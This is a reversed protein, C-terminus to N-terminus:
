RSRKGLPRSGLGGQLTYSRVKGLRSHRPLVYLPVYSQRGNSKVVPVQVTTFRM